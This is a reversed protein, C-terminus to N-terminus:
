RAHGNEGRLTRLKVNKKGSIAEDLTWGLRNIRGNFASHRIGFANCLDKQSKYKKGNYEVPQSCANPLSCKRSCYAHDRVSGDYNKMDSARKVIFKGCNKCNGTWRRNLIGREDIFEKLGPTDTNYGHEKWHCKECLTIGNDLDTRKDPHTEFPLIHHAHLTGDKKGCKQCTAKDRELVLRRWIDHDNSRSRRRAKDGKWNPHDLGKLIPPPHDKTSCKVSCYVAKKHNSYGWRNDKPLFSKKCVPCTKPEAVKKNSAGLCKYSCYNYKKTKGDAIHCQSLYYEKGCTHCKVNEGKWIEPRIKGKRAESMAKRHELTRPQRHTKVRPIGRKELWKLFLTQGIGFEKGAKEITLRPYYKELEEREPVPLAM